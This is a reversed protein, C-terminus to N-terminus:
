IISPSSLQDLIAVVRELAGPHVTRSSALWLAVAASDALRVGAHKMRSITRESVQYHAAWEANTRSPAKMDGTGKLHRVTDFCREKEEERAAAVIRAQAEEISDEPGIGLIGRVFGEVLPELKAPASM